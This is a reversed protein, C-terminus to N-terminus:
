QGVWCLRDWRGGVRDASKSYHGFVIVTWLFVKTKDPFESIPIVIRVDHNIPHIKVHCVDPISDCWVSKRNKPTKTWPITYLVNTVDPIILVAIWRIAGNINRANVLSTKRTFVANHCKHRVFNCMGTGGFVVFDMCFMPVSLKLFVVFATTTGFGVILDMLDM